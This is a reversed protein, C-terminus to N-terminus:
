AKAGSSAANLVGYTVKTNKQKTLIEELKNLTVEEFRRGIESIFM